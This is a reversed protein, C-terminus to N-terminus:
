IGYHWHKISEKMLKFHHESREHKKTARGRSLHKQKEKLALEYRDFQFAFTEPEVGHLICGQVQAAQHHDDAEGEEQEVGPIKDWRNIPKHLYLSEQQHNETQNWGAWVSQKKGMVCLLTSSEPLTHHNVPLAIFFFFIHLFVAMLWRWSRNFLYYCFNFVPATKWQTIPIPNPQQPVM